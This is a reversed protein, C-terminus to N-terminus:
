VRKKRTRRGAKKKTKRRGATKCPVEKVDLEPGYKGEPITANEFVYLMKMTQGSGSDGPGCPCADMRLYKGLYRGKSDEYCFGKPFGM